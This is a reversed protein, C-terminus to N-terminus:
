PMGAVVGDGHNSHRAEILHLALEVEVPDFTGSEV